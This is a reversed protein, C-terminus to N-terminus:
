QNAPATPGDQSSLVPYRAVLKDLKANLNERDWDRLDGHRARQTAEEGRIERIQDKAGSRQRAPMQGIRGAIAAIRADVDYFGTPGAGIYPGRAGPAPNVADPGPVGPSERSTDPSPQSAVVDTTAGFPQASAAGSMALASAIVIFARFSSSTM